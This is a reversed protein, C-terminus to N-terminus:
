EQVYLSFADQKRAKRAAERAMEEALALQSDYNDADSWPFSWVMKRAPVDWVEIVGELNSRWYTVFRSTVLTSAEVRPQVVFDVNLSRGYDLPDQQSLLRKRGESELNPFNRRLLREKQNLYIELDERSYVDLGPLAAFEEAVADGLAWDIGPTRYVDRRTFWWGKRVLEPEAPWAEPLTANLVAVRVTRAPDPTSACGGLLLGALCSLLFAARAASSTM